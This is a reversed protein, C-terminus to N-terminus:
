GLLQQELRLRCSSMLVHQKMSRAFGYIRESRALGHRDETSCSPAGSSSPKTSCEPTRHTNQHEEAGIQARLAAGQGTCHSLTTGGCLAVSHQCLLPTPQDTLAYIRRLAEWNM